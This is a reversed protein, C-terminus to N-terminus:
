VATGKVYFSGEDAGRNEGGTQEGEIRYYWSGSSDVDITCTYDGTANKTVQADVGYTYTTTTGAPNKVKFRVINPDFATGAANQFPTATNYIEIRDGLDYSNM